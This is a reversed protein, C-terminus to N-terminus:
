GRLKSQHAKLWEVLEEPTQVLSGDKKKLEHNKGCCYRGSNLGQSGQGFSLAVEAHAETESNDSIEYVVRVWRTTEGTMELSQSGCVPCAFGYDLRTVAKGHTTAWELLNDLTVEKEKLVSHGCSRCIIAWDYEGDLELYDCGFEDRDTMGLFDSRYFTNFGFLELADEGCEPCTCRYFIGSEIQQATLAQDNSPTESKISLENELNNEAM